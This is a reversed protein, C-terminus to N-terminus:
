LAFLLRPQDGLHHNYTAFTHGSLQLLCDVDLTTYNKLWINIAYHMDAIYKMHLSGGIPYYIQQVTCRLLSISTIPM